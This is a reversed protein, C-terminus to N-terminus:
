GKFTVIIKEAAVRSAFELRRVEASVKRMREDIVEFLKASEEVTYTEVKGAKEYKEVIMEVRNKRINEM